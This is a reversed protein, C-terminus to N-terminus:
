APSEGHGAALLNELGAMVHGLDGSLVERGRADRVKFVDRVRDRSVRFALKENAGGKYIEFVDGGREDASWHWRTARGHAISHGGFSELRQRDERGIFNEPLRVIRSM